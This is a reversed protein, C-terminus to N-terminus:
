THFIIALMVFTWPGQDPLINKFLHLKSFGDAHYDKSALDQSQPTPYLQM